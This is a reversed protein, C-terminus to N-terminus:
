LPELQEVDKGVNLIEQKVTLPQGLPQSTTAKSRRVSSPEPIKFSLPFPIPTHRLTHTCGWPQATYVQGQTCAWGAFAVCLSASLAPGHKPSHLQRSRPHWGAAAGLSLAEHRGWQHCCARQPYHWAWPLVWRGGRELVPNRGAETRRPHWQTPGPCEAGAPSSVPIPLNQVRTECAPM